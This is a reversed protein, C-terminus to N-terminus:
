SMKLFKTMDKAKIIINLLIESNKLQRNEILRHTHTHTHTHTNLLVKRIQGNSDLFKHKGLKYFDDYLYLLYDSVDFALHNL